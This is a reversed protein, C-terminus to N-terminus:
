KPPADGREPKPLPFKNNNNIFELIEYKGPSLNHKTFAQLKSSLFNLPLSLLETKWPWDPSSLSTVTLM